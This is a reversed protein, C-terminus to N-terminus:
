DTAVAETMSTGGGEGELGVVSLATGDEHIVPINLNVGVPSEQAHLNSGEVDGEGGRWQENEEEDEGVKERWEEGKWLNEEEEDEMGEEKRDEARSQLEAGTRKEEAVILEKMEEDENGNEEAGGRVRLRGSVFSLFVASCSGGRLKM